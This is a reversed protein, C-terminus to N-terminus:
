IYFFIFFFKNTLFKMKKTVFKKNNLYILNFKIKLINKNNNKSSFNLAANEM